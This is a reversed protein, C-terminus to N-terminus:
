TEGEALAPISSMIKIMEGLGPVAQRPCRLAFAGRDTHVTLSHVGDRGWHVAGNGVIVQEPGPGPTWMGDHYVAENGNVIVTVGDHGTTGTLMLDKEPAWCITIQMGHASLPQRFHIAVQESSGWFEGVKLGHKRTALGFGEPMYDAHLATFGLLRGM